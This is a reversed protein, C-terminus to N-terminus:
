KQSDMIDDISTNIYCSSDLYPDDMLKGLKKKVGAAYAEDTIFTIHDAALLKFSGRPLYDKACREINVILCNEPWEIDRVAKNEVSSDVVVTKELLVKCKEAGIYTANNNELARNLLIDYIPHCNFFEPILYSIIVVVTLPLFHTFSGTMECILLCATIPARVVATLFGAMAFIVMNQIYVPDMGSHASLLQGYLSGILAGIVLLPLFIGGPAGSGYSVMSFMFKLILFVLVARMGYRLDVVPEILHHGGRTIEPIFALAAGALLFVLYMKYKKKIFKDSSFLDLSLVLFHNYLIGAIGLVIGLLIISNYHALPFKDVIDFNMVPNSGYFTESVFEASVATALVTIVIFPSFNKHVEELAFVVGALPANFAAALGASAGGTVLYKAEIKKRRFIKCFGKGAAAGLQISPGERGLSLGSGICLVGAMFKNIIISIWPMKIQRFIYGKVQPIGSGSILPQISLMKNVLFAAFLLFAIIYPVYHPDHIHVFIYKDMLSSVYDLLFRYLVVIFGVFVGLILCELIILSKTNYWHDLINYANNEKAHVPKM